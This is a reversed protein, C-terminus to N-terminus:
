FKALSYQPRTRATPSLAALRSEVEHRGKRIESLNERNIQKNGWMVWKGALLDKEAQVYRALLDQLESKTM